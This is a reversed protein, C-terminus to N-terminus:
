RTMDAVFPLFALHRAQKIASVLQRQHRACVGSTRRTLVRGQESVFKGLKKTDRYDVFALKDECFPCNRQKGMTTKQDRKRDRKKNTSRKM